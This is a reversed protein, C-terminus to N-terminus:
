TKKWNEKEGWQRLAEKNGELGTELEATMELPLWLVAQVVLLVLTAVRGEPQIYLSFVYKKLFSVKFLYILLINDPKFCSFPTSFVVM